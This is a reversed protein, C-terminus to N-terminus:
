SAPCNTEVPRGELLQRAFLRSDAFSPNLTGSHDLGPYLHFQIRTGAKCADRVLAKQMPTPVDIDQEGTGVFVPTATKLTAYATNRLFSAYYAVFDGQLTRRRTMGAQVTATMMDAVCRQAAAHVLPMAAPTFVTDAKLAPDVEGAAAAIYFLYAITRDVQDINARPPLAGTLYPIGTAITGLVNVQPAYGRAAITTAFAASAGQSQGVILVKNALPLRTGGVTAGLAARVSDLVSWAEARTNLYPHLGPGGLGEYDTAVVAYGERLWGNLYTSDRESRPNASPACGDGIGVTGHAWAVVPWGDRPPTGKPLFLAGTVAVSRTGTIGNTATYLIRLATGADALGLAAPLPATDIMSGAAPLRAPTPPAEPAPGVDSSAPAPASQAGAQPALALALAAMGISHSKM